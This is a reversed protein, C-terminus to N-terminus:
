FMPMVDLSAITTEGGGGTVDGTSKNKLDSDEGGVSVNVDTELIPSTAELLFGFFFFFFFCRADASCTGALLM